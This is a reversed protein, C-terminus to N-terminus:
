IDIKFWLVMGHELKCLSKKLQYANRIKEIQLQVFIGVKHM